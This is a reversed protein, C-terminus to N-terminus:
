KMGCGEFECPQKKTGYDRCMQPRDEYITCEGTKKDWARCTYHWGTETEYQFVLIPWLIHADEITCEPKLINSLSLQLETPSFDTEFGSCCVRACGNDQLIPLQPTKAKKKKRYERMYIKNRERFAEIDKEKYRKQAANTKDRNEERWARCKERGGNEKYYRRQAALRKDRDKYPM